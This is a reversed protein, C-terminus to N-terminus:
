SSPAIFRLFDTANKELERARGEKMDYEMQPVAHHEDILQWGALHGVQAIRHRFALRQSGEFHAQYKMTEFVITADKALASALTCKDRKQGFLAPATLRPPKIIHTITGQAPRFPDDCSKTLGLEEFFPLNVMAGVFVSHFMGQYKSKRLVECLDGTLLAVKVNEFVPLLPPWDNKQPTRRGRRGQQEGDTKTKGIKASGSVQDTKVEEVKDAARLAELPSAYPYVHEESKEPPLHFPQGTEMESLYATLNFEAIDTETQRYMSGSIKFLRSKDEPDTATGFTHYPSNVIDGWFGRVQVSTGKSRDTAETYSALTRNPLKYSALRTEYAVGTFCFEKYHFWNIIGASNKIHTHYDQDMLNKRYDYRDRYYGRCRQDRLAEADFPVDKYWGKFVDQLIDRDKFKLHSLDVIDALPHLSNDTVLEVFEPAIDGLYSCDRERVLTNGYLSLFIEMRERIPLAKNNVIQLFLVHRALVEHHGEHLFFRIQRDSRRRCRAVTKVVHRLDAGGAILINIPGDGEPLKGDVPWDVAESTVNKDITTDELVEMTEAAVDEEIANNNKPQYGSPNTAISGPGFSTAQPDGLLDLSSSNGWFQLFGIADISDSAYDQPKHVERAVSIRAM